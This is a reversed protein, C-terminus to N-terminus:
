NRWQTQVLLAGTAAGGRVVELLAAGGEESCLMTGASNIGQGRALVDQSLSDVLRVDLSGESNEAGVSFASCTDESLRVPIVVRQEASLALSRVSDKTASVGPPELLRLRSDARSAALAANAFLPSAEREALVLLRAGPAYEDAELEIVVPGDHCLLVPVGPGTKAEGLLRGTSSWGRLEGQVSTSRAQDTLLYRRCGQSQVTIFRLQGLALDVQRQQLVDQQPVDLVPRGLRVVAHPAGGLTPM